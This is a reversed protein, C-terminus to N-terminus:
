EGASGVPRSHAQSIRSVTSTQAATSTSHRSRTIGLRRRGNTEVSPAPPNM